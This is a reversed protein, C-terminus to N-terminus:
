RKFKDAWQPWLAALDMHQEITDAIRDIGQERIQDFDPTQTAELGAWGLIADCAAQQEFIGHM